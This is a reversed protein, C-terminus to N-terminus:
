WFMIIKLVCGTTAPFSKGLTISTFAIIFLLPSVFPWECLLNEVIRINMPTIKKKRENEHTSTNQIIKHQFEALSPTLSFFLAYEHSLHKIMKIRKYQVIFIYKYDYLHTYALVSLSLSLTSFPHCLLRCSFFFWYSFLLVFNLSYFSVFVSFFIMPSIQSYPHLVYKHIIQLEM